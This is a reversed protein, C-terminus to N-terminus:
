QTHEIVVDDTIPGAKEGKNPCGKVKRGQRLRELAEAAKPVMGEGRIACSVTAHSISKLTPFLALIEKVIFRYSHGHKRLRRIRLAMELTLKNPRRQLTSIKSLVSRSMPQGNAHVLDHCKKCLPITKRGGLCKPVVHHNHEAPLGCEFCSADM